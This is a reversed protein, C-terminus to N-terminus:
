FGSKGLNKKHEKVNILLIIAWLQHAHMHYSVASTGYQLLSKPSPIHQSLTQVAM